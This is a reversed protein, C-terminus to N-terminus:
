EHDAVEKLAEMNKKMGELYADKHYRGTVLTDLEITQCQTEEHLVSSLREGYMEETFVYRIGLDKVKDIVEGVETAKLSSNEDMNITEAIEWGFNHAFYSFAEHTSVAVHAHSHMMEEGEEKLQEVKRVYERTNEEYRNRNTEDLEMLAQGINKIQLSYNDMDMWIHANETHSDELEHEPEEEHEAEEEHEHVHAHGESSLIEVGVDSRVIQLKPYLNMVDELYSEMGAGNVVFVDAKELLVMDKTTLQQNHVCGTTPQSLCEVQVGETGDVVNLTAIYVPYFSTVVLIGDKKVERGFNCIVVAVSTLVALLITVFVYKGKM